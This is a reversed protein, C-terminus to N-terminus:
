FVVWPSRTAALGQNRAAAPERWCGQRVTWGGSSPAVDRATIMARDHASDVVFCREVPAPVQADVSRLAAALWDPHEGGWAVVVAIRV